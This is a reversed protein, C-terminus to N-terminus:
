LKVSVFVIDLSRRSKCARSPYREYGSSAFIKKLREEASLGNQSRLVVYVRVDPLCRLIKELLVRGLESTVGTLLVARNAYWECLSMRSSQLRSSFRIAAFPALHENESSSLIQHFIVLFSSLYKCEVKTCRNFQLTCLISTMLM